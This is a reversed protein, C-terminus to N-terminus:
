INLDYNLNLLIGKPMATKILITVHHVPAVINNLKVLEPVGNKLMPASASQFLAM